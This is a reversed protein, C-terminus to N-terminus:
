QDDYPSAKRESGVQDNVDFRLVLQRHARPQLTLARKLTQEAKEPSERYSAEIEYRGAPLEVFLWPGDLTHELVPQQTRRDLIRVRVAALYAGSGKAVTTLWLNYSDREKYLEAQESSGIGGSVYPLGLGSTARELAYTVSLAGVLCLGVGFLRAIFRRSNM